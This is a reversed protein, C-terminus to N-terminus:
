GYRFDQNTMQNQFDKRKIGTRSYVTQARWLLLSGKGAWLPLLKPPLAQSLKLGQQCPCQGQRQSFYAKCLLHAQCLPDWAPSIGGFAPSRVAHQSSHPGQACPKTPMVRSPFPYFQPATPVSYVNQGHVMQTQGECTPDWRGGLCPAWTPLWSQRRRPKGGPGRRM